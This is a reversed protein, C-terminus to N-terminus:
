VEEQNVEAFDRVAFALGLHDADFEFFDTM